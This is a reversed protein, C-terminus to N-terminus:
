HGIVEGDPSLLYWGGGFGDVEHGATQGPSDDRVFYYLPWGNYTFQTAGDDRQLTGILDSQVDGETQPEESGTFLPWADLCDDACESAAEQGDQGQTDIEFMYLAMGQGDTLYAGHEESEGVAITAQQAAASGSILTIAAVAALLGYLPKM